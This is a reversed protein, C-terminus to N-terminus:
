LVSRFKIESKREKSSLVEHVLDLRMDITFGRHEIVVIDGYDFQVGRTTGPTEVLDAALVTVPRGSRVASAAIANLESSDASNGNDVFTEIRNFPSTATRSADLNNGYARAIGQGAGGALAFTVEQSHDVTLVANKLNGRSESFVIPNSSTSGHDVGRQGTYTRAELTSETPAVIEAAVYTGNQTSNEAVELIADHLARWAAEKPATYGQSTNAAITLLAAINAQFPDGYRFITIGSGMNQSILSKILDDAPASPQEAETQWTGYLVYRRAFLSNVHFATITTYDTGYEWIRALYIAQGDLVPAAGNISRWVGIRADLPILTTDVTTPITLVLVGIKGVSLVYDLAPGGQETFNALELLPSGLPDFVKVSYLTTM